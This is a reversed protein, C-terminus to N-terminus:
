LQRGYLRGTSQVTGSDPGNQVITAAQGVPTVYNLKDGLSTTPAGGLINISATTSPTVNFTDAVNGGQVELQELGALYTVTQSPSTLTTISADITLADASGTGVIILKDNTGQAAADNVDVQGGLNGLQVTYTDDGDKGDLKVSGSSGAQPNLNIIDNDSNGSVIAQTVSILKGLIDITSGVGVDALGFDGDITVNGAANVTAGAAITVNDGGQLGVSAGTSRVIAPSSITLDDTGAIGVEAGLVINSSATVDEIVTLTGDAFVTLGGTSTIGPVPGSVGGITVAGSNRVFFGDSGATGELKNITTELFGGGGVGNGGTLLAADAIIDVNGDSDLIRLTTSTVVATGAGTETNIVGGTGFTVDLNGIVTANGGNTLVSANLNVGGGTSELRVSKGTGGNDSEVTQSVTLLGSTLIDVNADAKVGDLSDVTTVTLTGTNSVVFDNATARGSLNTVTTNIPTGVVGVGSAANLRANAATVM